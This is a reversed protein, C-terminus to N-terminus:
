VALDLWECSAFSFSGHADVRRKKLPGKIHIEDNLTYVGDLRPRYYETMIPDKKLEIKLEKLKELIAEEKMPQTRGERDIYIYISEGFQEYLDKVSISKHTDVMLKYLYPMAPKESPINNRLELAYWEFDQRYSEFVSSDNRIFHDAGRKTASAFVNDQTFLKMSSRSRGSLHAGRGNSGIQTAVNPQAIDYRWATVPWAEAEFSRWRRSPSAWEDPKPRNPDFTPTDTM